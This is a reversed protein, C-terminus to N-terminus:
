GISSYTCIRRLLNSADKFKSSINALISENVTKNVTLRVRPVTGGHDGHPSFTRAFDSNHRITMMRFELPRYGAVVDLALPNAAEELRLGGGLRENALNFDLDLIKARASDPDIWTQM